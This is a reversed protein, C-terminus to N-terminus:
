RRRGACFSAAEARAWDVAAWSAWTAKFNGASLAEVAAGEADGRVLHRRRRRARRADQRARRSRRHRHQRRRGSCGFHRARLLFRDRALSPRRQSQSWANGMAIAPVVLSVFALLPAENPCVLGMVGWPENMALTVFRKQTAHVAGDYKDAFGAYFFMRRISADVEDERGARSERRDDRASARRIRRRASRSERRCLLAGARPQARDGRGLVAAKSAAEVANRIDKRNGLGAQGM